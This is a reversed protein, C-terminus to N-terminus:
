KILTQSLITASLQKSLYLDLLIPNLFNINSVLLQIAETKLVAVLNQLERVGGNQM